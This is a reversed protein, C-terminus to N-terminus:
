ILFGWVFGLIGLDMFNNLSGVFVLFSSAETSGKPYQKFILNKNEFCFFQQTRLRKVTHHVVQAQM